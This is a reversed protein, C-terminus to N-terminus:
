KKGVIKPLMKKNSNFSSQVYQIHTGEIYFNTFCNVRVKLMNYRQKDLFNRVSIETVM